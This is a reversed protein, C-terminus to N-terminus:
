ALKSCKAMEEIIGKAALRCAASSRLGGQLCM